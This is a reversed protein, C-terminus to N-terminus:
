TMRLPFSKDLWKGDAAQHREFSDQAAQPSEALADPASPSACVPLSSHVTLVIL